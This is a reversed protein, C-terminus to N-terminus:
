LGHERNLGVLVTKFEQSTPDDPLRIRTHRHYYYARGRAMVKQVHATENRIERAAVALKARNAQNVWARDTAASNKINEAHTLYRLNGRQNNLGNRDEHDIELGDQVPLILRHMYVTKGDIVTRAYITQSGKVRLAYWARSNLGEFDQDDVLAFLGSGKKGRLYIKKV